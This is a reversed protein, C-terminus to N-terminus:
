ATGKKQDIRAKKKAEWEIIHQKREVGWHYNGLLGNTQIVRHCPILLAIPNAGIATGVARYATPRQIQTAVTGYTTLKGSPIALLAKWVQLQFATGKLHLVPASKKSDKEVFTALVSSLLPDTTQEIRANPFTQRLDSLGAKETETFVLRCIGRSTTAIFLSGFPSEGFQYRIELAAGGHACEASTMAEINTISAHLARTM